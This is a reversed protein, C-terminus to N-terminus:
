LVAQPEEAKSEFVVADHAVINTQFKIKFLQQDSVSDSFTINRITKNPNIFDSEGLTDVQFYEFNNITYSIRCYDSPQTFTSEKPIIEMYIHNYGITPQTYDLVGINISVDTNEFFPYGYLIDYFLTILFIKLM